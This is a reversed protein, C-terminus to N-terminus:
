NTKSIQLYLSQLSTAAPSFGCVPLGAAIIQKLMDLQGAPEPTAALLIVTRGPEILPAQQSIALTKLIAEHEAALPTTLTLTLTVGQQQQHAKLSVHQQIAGDRLVLMATCYEELEALIHSSVLINMGDAQLSKLITSLESRAEPDLGSAPEDLMLMAPKHLISMAIGVRQRWGRSLTGCKQTMVDNLRLTAVVWAIRDRTESPALNHCGAIFILVDQVSLDSYLGFDDSLYGIKTHALRPDAAVDVGAVTIKGSFPSDLGALSRLLTSKGAGNPGVLATISGDELTFSVDRLAQKAPYYFNIHEVSVIPQSM